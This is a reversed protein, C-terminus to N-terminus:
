KSDPDQTPQFDEGSCPAFGDPWACSFHCFLRNSMPANRNNLLLRLQYEAAHDHLLQRLVAVLYRPVWGLHAGREDCVLLAGSEHINDGDDHLRLQQGPRLGDLLSEATGNALVHRLGRVFFRVEYRGDANPQPRVLFEYWDTVKIGGTRALIEFPDPAPRAQLGMQAMREGYDPRRPSMIRKSVVPHLDYGRDIGDFLSRLIDPLGNHPNHLGRTSALTYICDDGGDERERTLLSCPVWGRSKPGRVGMYIETSM